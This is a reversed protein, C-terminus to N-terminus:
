VFPGSFYKTSDVEAGQALLVRAINDDGKLIAFSLPSAFRDLNPDAGAKLLVKVAAKIGCGVALGVVTLWFGATAM